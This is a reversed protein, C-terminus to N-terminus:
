AFFKEWKKGGWLEKGGGGLGGGGGHGPGFNVWGPGGGGLGEQLVRYKSLTEGQGV